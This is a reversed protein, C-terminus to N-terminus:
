RTYYIVKTKRIGKKLNTPFTDNKLYVFISLSNSMWFRAIKNNQQAIPRSKCTPQPAPFVMKGNIAVYGSM